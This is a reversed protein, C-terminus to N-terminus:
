RRPQRGDTHTALMEAAHALTAETIRVGGLMRAVEGIRGPADLLEVASITRGEASRKAVRWHHDAAAAVQPLHTICLTQRGQGLARLM